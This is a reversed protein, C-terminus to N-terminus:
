LLRFDSVREITNGKEKKKNEKSNYSSAFSCIFLYCLGSPAKFVVFSVTYVGGAATPNSVVKRAGGSHLLSLSYSAQLEEHLFLVMMITLM